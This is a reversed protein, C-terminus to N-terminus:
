LYIINIYTIYNRERIVPIKRYKLGYEELIEWFWRKPTIIAIRGGRRIVRLESELIKEYLARLGSGHYPPNHVIIDIQEEGFIEHLRRADGRILKIDKITYSKELNRKAGELFHTSRDLAYIRLELNERIGRLIKERAEMETEKSLFKLRKFAFDERFLFHPIRKAYLAAEIPITAGGCTPDLLIKSHNWGSMVIMSYAITTKLAYPHSFERYGRMHLSRGTTDIGILLTSHSLEVLVRVDPNGLNVKPRERRRKTITEIIASGAERAIDMSTFSHEGIRNARIAFTQGSAIYRDWEIGRIIRAIDSLTKAETRELVIYLRNISRATFNIFYIVEEPGYFFIKGPKVRHESIVNFNKALDDLCFNELGREVTAMFLIKSNM